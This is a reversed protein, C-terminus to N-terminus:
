LAAEDYCIRLGVETNEVLDTLAHVVALAVILVPIMAVLVLTMLPYQILYEVLPQTLGPKITM